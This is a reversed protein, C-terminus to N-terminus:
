CYDTRDLSFMLLERSVTESVKRIKDRGEETSNANKWIDVSDIAKQSEQSKKTIDTSSKTKTKFEEIIKSLSKQEIALRGILPVFIGARALPLM